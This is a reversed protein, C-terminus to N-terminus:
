AGRSCDSWRGWCEDDLMAELGCGIEALQWTSFFTGASFREPAERMRRAFKRVRSRLIFYRVFWRM